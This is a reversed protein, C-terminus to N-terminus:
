INFLLLIILVKFLIFVLVALHSFQIYINEVLERGRRKGGEEGWKEKECFCWM